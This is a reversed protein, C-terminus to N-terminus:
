KSQSSLLQSTHSTITFTANVPNLITSIQILDSQLSILLFSNVTIRPSSILIIFKCQSPQSLRTLPFANTNQTICDNQITAPTHFLPFGTMQFSLEDSKHKTMHPCLPQWTHACHNHLCIKPHFIHSLSTTNQSNQITTHSHASTKFTTERPSNGTIYYCHQTGTHPKHHICHTHPLTRLAPFPWPSVSSLPTLSVTLYTM